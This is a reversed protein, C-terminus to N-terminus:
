SAHEIQGISHCRDYWDIWIRIFSNHFRQSGTLRSMQVGVFVWLDSCGVIKFSLGEIELVGDAGVERECHRM